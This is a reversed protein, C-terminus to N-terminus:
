FIHFSFLGGIKRTVYRQFSLFNDLPSKGHISGVVHTVFCVVEDNERRRFVKSRHFVM